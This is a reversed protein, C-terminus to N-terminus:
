RANQCNRLEGNFKQLRFLQHRTKPTTLQKGKGTNDLVPDDEERQHQTTEDPKRLLLFHQVRWRSVRLDSRNERKRNSQSEGTFNSSRNNPLQIRPQEM